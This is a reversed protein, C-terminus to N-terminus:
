VVTKNGGGGGLEETHHCATTTAVVTFVSVPSFPDSFSCCPHRRRTYIAVVVLEIDTFVAFVLKRRCKKKKELLRRKKKSTKRRRESRRWWWAGRGQGGELLLFLNLVCLFLSLSQFLSLHGTHHCATTTAVVTFVSVPSSPDSFRCCPHRRRTYIAVVVLEIDTFVAFVLKRRCKKKKELLRRKKKSTEEELVSLSLSSSSRPNHLVGSPFLLHSPCTLYFLSLSSFLM